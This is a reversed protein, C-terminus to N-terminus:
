KTLPNTPNQSFFKKKPKWLIVGAASVTNGHGLRGIGVTNASFVANAAISRRYQALFACSNGM